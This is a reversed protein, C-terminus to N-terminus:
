RPDAVPDPRSVVDGAKRSEASLLVRTAQQRARRLYAFVGSVSLGVIVLGALLVAATYLSGGAKGAHLPFLSMMVQTGRGAALADWTGVVTASTPDVAILSRGIPNWEGDRHTRFIVPRDPRSPASLLGLTDDPFAADAAAIVGPWDINAPLLVERVPVTIASVTGAGYDAGVLGM